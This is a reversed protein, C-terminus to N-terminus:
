HRMFYYLRACGIRTADPSPATFSLVQASPNWHRNLIHLRGRMGGASVPSCAAGGPPVRLIPCHARAFVYTRDNCYNVIYLSEMWSTDRHFQWILAHITNVTSRLHAMFLPPPTFIGPLKGFPSLPMGDGFIFFFVHKKHQCDPRCSIFVYYLGAISPYKHKNTKM